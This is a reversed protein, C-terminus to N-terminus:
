CARDEARVENVALEIARDRDFTSVVPLCVRMFAERQLRRLDSELGGRLGCHSVLQDGCVLLWEMRGVGHQGTNREIRFTLEDV